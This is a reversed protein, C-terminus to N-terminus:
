VIFGFFVLKEWFEVDQSSTGMRWRLQGPGGGTNGPESDEHGNHDEILNMTFGLFDGFWFLFSFWCITKSPKVM